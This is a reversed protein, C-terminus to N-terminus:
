KIKVKKVSKMRIFTLAAGILCISATVIYVKNMGYVFVDERGKIYNFVQYGIKHSMTSYLITTSFSIGFVLGMNRMLANMSGAVGLKNKDVTSMILSTNPSQFLGCGLSMICVYIIVIWLTSTQKLLSMLLLSIGITLLGLLTLLESGIRDSLYGSTPAVVSLVIPNAMMILGTISPNLKLVNQLYFPQIINVAGIAIFSIFACILSLTFLRSSFITFDLLPAQAKKEVKVFAICLAICLAIILITIPNSYGIIKGQTIGCFTAIILIVFLISGKLDLRETTTKNSKPLNRVAMIYTVIGIPVNILFIYKWSLVSVILGGLPPGVLTGLAVFTGSIGLARGRENPPFVHTIIGQNTAMSAAAGIGQLVRAMVLTSLSNAMGCFLSGLAFVLLGYKFVKTKGIIDGLRGFILITSTIVILYSTVVWEIGAMDTNLKNAMVPLAVNIISSDLCAMFTLMVVTFLIIWRNKYESM